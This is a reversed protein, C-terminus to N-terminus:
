TTMTTRMIRGTVDILVSHDSFLLLLIVLLGEFCSVDTVLVSGLLRFM